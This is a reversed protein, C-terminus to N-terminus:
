GPDTMRERLDALTKRLLRSLYSQSVGIAAAIEPQTMGKVFRMELISRERAPLEAMAEELWAGVEAQEFGREDTGLHREGFHASPEDDPGPRDISASRYASAAELGELVAEESLDLHRALEGVRPARGLAHTLEEEGKRVVLYLEQVRRPPRVSWTRDRFYRKIEGDITRNAFTSFAFGRDPDFRDVAHLVGLLAIQRLDDEAAARGRYKRVLHEAMDVHMEVLRNRVALDGTERFRRFLEAAEDTSEDTM